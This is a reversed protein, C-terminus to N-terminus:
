GIEVIAPNSGTPRGLAYLAANFAFGVQFGSAYGCWEGANPWRASMADWLVDAQDRRKGRLIEHEDDDPYYRPDLLSEDEELLVLFAHGIADAVLSYGDAQRDKWPGAGDFLPTSELRARVDQPSSRENAAPQDDGSIIARLARQATIGLNAGDSM